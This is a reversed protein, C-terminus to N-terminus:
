ARPALVARELPTGPDCCIPKVMMLRVTDSIATSIGDQEHSTM